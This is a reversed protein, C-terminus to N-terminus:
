RKDMTIARRRMEEIVKSRAKELAEYPEKRIKPKPKEEETEVKPEVEKVELYESEEVQEVEKEVVKRAPLYDASEKVFSVGLLKWVLFLFALILPIYWFRKALDSGKGILGTLPSINEEGNGELNTTNEITTTTTDTTAQNGTVTLTIEEDYTISGIKTSIKFPYNGAEADQPIDFNITIDVDEDYTIKAVSSPLVTFWNNNIGSVKFALNTQDDRYKSYFKGRITKKGGVKVSVSAPFDYFGTTKAPDGSSSGGYTGSSGSSGSNDNDDDNDCSGCDSSCSSCSEGSDCYDDGCYTSSSRCTGHVCYDSQCENDDSCSEGNDLLSSQEQVTVEWEQSVTDIGDSVALTVNYVGADGTSPTYTWNQSTAQETGNLLWSYTLPNYDPDASEHTFELSIDEEVIPTLDTPTYSQIIPPDNSPDVCINGDCYAGSGYQGECCTATCTEMKIEINNNVCQFRRYYGDYCGKLTYLNQCDPYVGCSLDTNDCTEESPNDGSAYIQIAFAGEAMNNGDQCEGTVIMNGSKTSTIDIHLQFNKTESPDLEITLPDVYGNLSNDPTLIFILNEDNTNEIELEYDIETTGEPYDDADVTLYGSGYFNVPVGYENRVIPNSCAGVIQFSLVFLALIFIIKKM